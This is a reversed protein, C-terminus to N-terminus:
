KKSYKELFPLVNNVDPFRLVDNDCVLCPTQLINHQAVLDSFLKENNQRHVIEIFQDYKGQLGKSLYMKLADCKPCRDQTLLYIM